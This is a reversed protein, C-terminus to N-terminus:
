MAELVGDCISCQAGPEVMSYCIPCQVFEAARVEPALPEYGAATAANAGPSTAAAVPLITAGFPGPGPDEEAKLDFGCQPCPYQEAFGRWSFCRPCDLQEEERMKQGCKWCFELDSPVRPEECHPCAVAQAVTQNCQTCFIARRDISKRCNPCPREGFRKDPHVAPSLPREIPKVVDKAATKDLRARDLALVDRWVVHGAYTDKTNQEAYKGAATCYDALITRFEEDTLPEGKKKGSLRFMANEFQASEGAQAVSQAFQRVAEEIVAHEPSYQMLGPVGLDTVTRPPYVKELYFQLLWWYIATLGQPRLNRIAGDVMQLLASRHSRHEAGTERYLFDVAHAEEGLDVNTVILGEERKYGYRFIPQQGDTAIQRVTLLGLVRALVFARLSDAYRKAEADEKPILDAFQFRNRDTHLEEKEPHADYAARLGGPATVSGPYFAPVGALENYFVIAGRHQAGINHFGPSREGSPQIKAVLGEFDHFRSSSKDVGILCPKQDGNVPPLGVHELGGEAPALWVKGLNYALRVKDERERVSVRNADMLLALADPQKEKAAIIERCRALIDAEVTEAPMRQIYTLAATVSSVNFITTLIQNGVTRLLDQEDQEEGVWIKYWHDVDGERYLSIILDSKEEASFYREKDHLRQKLKEFGALLDYYRGLLGDGGPADTGLFRSIEECVQRGRKAVQKKVRAVYHNYFAGLDEAEKNDAVLKEYDRKLDETRFLRQREHRAIDMQLQDLDNAYEQVQDRWMPMQAELEQVYWFNENRLLAKLERLLSLTYSVGFQPDDSLEAAKKEIGAKVRAVYARTTNEIHRIGVGWEQPNESDEKAFLRELENRHEALRAAKQGNPAAQLDTRVTQAKQWLYSPFTKGGGAEYDMLAKEINREEITGAGDRREYRGQAFQVDQDTLFTTFLRELPDDVASQQWHDLVRAALRSACASQVRDTPFVISALGFSGFRTAYADGVIQKQGSRMTENLFNHSYVELNFNALNVRTARKMGAFAGISYDQFLVEAVMRYADYEKGASGITLRAENQGDILYTNTFPPPQMHESRGTSTWEGTFPHGFVYHNLEMLAAYGNARVRQGGAYASFFSPLLLIGLQEARPFYRKALFAMDLFTGSGTGGALSAIIIVHMMDGSFQFGLEAAAQPIATDHLQANCQELRAAIHAQNDADFFGLRSAMRIQGAGHGLDGLEAIKGSTPFWRKVHPFNNIHQVYKGTGGPITLNIREANTFRIEEYLPDDGRRIDYQEHATATTDTDIHTFRLFPLRDLSGYREVIKRRLRLLVEKGTGGLGIMLTPGVPKDTLLTAPLSAQVIADLKM